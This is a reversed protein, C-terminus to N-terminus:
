KKKNQNITIVEIQEINEIEKKVSNFYDLLMNNSESKIFELTILSHKKSDKFSCHNCHKDILNSAYEKPNM